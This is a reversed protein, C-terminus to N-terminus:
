AAASSQTVRHVPFTVTITTGEDVASEIALTGGHIEAFRKVLALGLGTGEYRRDLGAEAQQFPEIVKELDEPAIGIGNDAVIIALGGNGARQAKVSVRGGKPTYKM